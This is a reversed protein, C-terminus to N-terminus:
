QVRAWFSAGRWVRPEVISRRLHPSGGRRPQNVEQGKRGQRGIENGRRGQSRRQCRRQGGQRGEDACGQISKCREEGQGRRSQCGEEGTSRRSQRREQGQSRCRRRGQSQGQGGQRGRGERGEHDQRGQGSVREAGPRGAAAKATAPAAAPTGSPMAAPASKVAATAPAAPAASKAAPPPQMGSPAAQMGSPATSKADSKAAGTPAVPTSAGSVSIMGKVKAFTGEKIGNVKMIEEPTKFPGNATRYDIIAQAKVPGIEPLADLEEKTATNINVAALALASFLLTMLLLLFRKM